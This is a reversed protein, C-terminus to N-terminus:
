SDQGSGGGLLGLEDPSPGDTRAQALSYTHRDRARGWVLSTPEVEQIYVTAQRQSQRGAPSEEGHQLRTGLWGTEQGQRFGRGAGPGLEDWAQNQWWCGDSGARHLGQPATGWLPCPRHHSWGWAGPVRAGTPLQEKSHSFAYSQMNPEIIVKRKGQHM